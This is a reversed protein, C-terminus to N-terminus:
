QKIVALLNQWYIGINLFCNVRERFIEHSNCYDNPIKHVKIFYILFM